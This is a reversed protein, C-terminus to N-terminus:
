NTQAYSKTGEIWHAIEQLLSIYLEFIVVSFILVISCTLINSLLYGNVFLVIFLHSARHTAHYNMMSKFAKLLTIAESRESPEVRHHQKYTQVVSIVETMNTQKERHTRNQCRRLM